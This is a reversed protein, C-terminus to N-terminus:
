GPLVNFSIDHTHLLYSLKNNWRLPVVGACDGDGCVVGAVAVNPAGDDVNQVSIIRQEM